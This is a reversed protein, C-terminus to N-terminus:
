GCDQEAADVFDSDSVVRERNVIGTLVEGPRLDELDELTFRIRSDRGGVTAFGVTYRTEPELVSLTNDVTEWGAPTDFPKVRLLQNAEAYDPRGPSSIPPGVVWGRSNDGGDTEFVRIFTVVQGQCLYALVEVQGDPYSVAVRADPPATCAAAVAAMTVVVGVAAFM